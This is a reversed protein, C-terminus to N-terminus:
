DAQGVPEGALPSGLAGGRAVRPCDVLRVPGDDDQAVCNDVFIINAPDRTGGFEPERAM